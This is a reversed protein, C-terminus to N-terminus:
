LDRARADINRVGNIVNGIDIEVDWIGDPPNHIDLQYAPPNWNPDNFGIMPAGALGATNNVRIRWRAHVVGARAAWYIKDRKSGASMSLKRINWGAQLAYGALISTCVMMMMAVTLAVGKRGMSLLLTKM